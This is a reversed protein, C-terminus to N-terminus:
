KKKHDTVSNGWDKKKPHYNFKQNILSQYETYSYHKKLKLFQNFIFKQIPLIVLSDILTHYPKITFLDHHNQIHLYHPLLNLLSSHNLNLKAHYTFQMIFHYLTSLLIINFHINFSSNLNLHVVKQHRFLYPDKLIYGKVAFVNQDLCHISCSHM